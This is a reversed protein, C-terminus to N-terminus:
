VISLRPMAAMNEAETPGRAYSCVPLSHLTMLRSEDVHIQIGHLCAVGEAANHSGRCPWKKKHSSAYATSATTNRCRTTGPVIMDVPRTDQAWKQAAGPLPVTVRPSSIGDCAVDVNQPMDTDHWIKCKPPHCNLHSQTDSWAPATNVHPFSLATFTVSERLKWTCGAMLAGPKATPPTQLLAQKPGSSRWQAAPDEM